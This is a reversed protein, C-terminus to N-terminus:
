WQLVNRSDASIPNFFPCARHFFYTALTNKIDLAKKSLERPIFVKVKKMGKPNLICLLESQLVSLILSWEKM